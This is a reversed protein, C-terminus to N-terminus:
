VTCKIKSPRSTCWLSMITECQQVMSGTQLVYGLSSMLMLNQLYLHNIDELMMPIVQINWFVMSVVQRTLMSLFVKHIM